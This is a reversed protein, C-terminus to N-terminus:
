KDETNYDNHTDTYVDSKPTKKFKEEGHQFVDVGKIPSEIPDIHTETPLPDAKEFTLYPCKVQGTCGQPKNADPHYCWGCDWYKCGGRSKAM